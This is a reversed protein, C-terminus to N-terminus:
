HAFAHSLIQYRQGSGLASQIPIIVSLGTNHKFNSIQVTAFEYSESEAEYLCVVEGKSPDVAFLKSFSFGSSEQISKQFSNFTKGM